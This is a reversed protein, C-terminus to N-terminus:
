IIPVIKESFAYRLMEYGVGCIGHFLTLSMVDRYEEGLIRYQGTRDRRSKMSYLIKGARETNGAALHYEVLASNGCCLHDRFHIPLRNVAEDALGTLLKAEDMDEMRRSVIGIGPAGSCYGHMFGQPPFIRRDPWTGIKQDYTNYEFRAAERAAEIWADQRMRKGALWLAEAIGIMGHGAGSIIHRKSVTKWLTYGDAQFKKLELLRQGLRFILDDVHEATEGPAHYACLTYLLGSIGNFRDTLATKKIREICADGSLLQFINEMHSRIGSLDTDRRYREMLILCKLIGGIGEAEGFRLGSVPRYMGGDYLHDIYEGILILAADLIRDAHERVAAKETLMGVAAAYLGLGAAGEAMDPPIMNSSGDNMNLILWSPAGGPVSIMGAYVEELISEAERLADERRLPLAAERIMEPESLIRNTKGDTENKAPDSLVASTKGDTENKAPDSVIESAKGISENGSLNMKVPTLYLSRRLLNIEYDMEDENMRELNRLARDVGSEETFYDTLSKGDACIERSDAAVTFIPIDGRLIAEAEAEAIPGYQAPMRRMLITRLNERMNTQIDESSVMVSKYTGMMLDGYYQSTRLILRLSVEEFLSKLDKEIEDKRSMCERYKASFGEFFEKEYAYWSAPSGDVIPASNEESETDLLVSIQRGNMIKPFIGSKWLSDCAADQEELMTRDLQKMKPTLLTELDIIAPIGDSAIVNESHMDTSGLIELLVCMAGLSYYWRAANEHGGAVEKKCYKCIGFSFGDTFCEPIVVIGGFYKKVFAYAATDVRCDRPKYIMWGADTSIWAASRGKNHYDGAGLRIQQICTYEKGDFITDCIEKKHDRLNRLLESLACGLLSVRNEVLIRLPKPLEIRGGELEARLVEAAWENQERTCLGPDFAAFPNKQSVIKTRMGNLTDSVILYVENMFSGLIDRVAEESVDERAEALIQSIKESLFPQFYEMYKNESKITFM